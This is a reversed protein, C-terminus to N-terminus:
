LINRIISFLAKPWNLDAVFGLIGNSELYESQEERAKRVLVRMDECTDMMDSINKMSVLNSDHYGWRSVITKLWEFSSDKAFDGPMVSGPKSKEICRKIYQKTEDVFSEYTDAKLLNEINVLRKKSLRVYRENNDIM